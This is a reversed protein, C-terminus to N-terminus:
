IRTAAISAKAPVAAAIRSVKGSAVNTTSWKWAMRM